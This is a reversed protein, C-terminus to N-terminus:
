ESQSIGTSSMGMQEEIVLTIDVGGSVVEPKPAVKTEFTLKQGEKDRVTWSIQQYNVEFKIIEFDDM